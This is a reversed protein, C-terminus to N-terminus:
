LPDQGTGSRYCCGRTSQGEKAASNAMKEQPCTGSGQPNTSNRRDQGKWQGAGSEPQHAFRRDKWGWQQCSSAEAKAQAPEQSHSVQRCASLEAQRSCQSSTCSEKGQSDISGRHRCSLLFLLVFLPSSSSSLSLLSKLEYYALYM